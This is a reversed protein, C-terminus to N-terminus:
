RGAVVEIETDAGTEVTFPQNFTDEGLRAVAVYDGAALVQGAYAGDSELVTDGGPTLVTWSTGALAEGGPAAVLKFSIEAAAHVIQADTLRGADVRIKARRVANGAGYRSVVYYSGAPLRILRGPEADKVVRSAADLDPDRSYIDLTVREEPAPESPGLLSTIRLAGADLTITEVTPALGVMVRKTVSATGFTCNVIYAGPALDLSPQADQTDTLLPPDAPEGAETEGPMGFVRWRVGRGLAPMEPALRAELTLASQRPVTLDPLALATRKEFPAFGNAMRLADEFPSPATPLGPREPPLPIPAAAASTITLTALSFAAILGRARARLAAGTESISAPVDIM